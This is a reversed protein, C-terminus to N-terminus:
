SQGGDLADDHAEDQTDDQVEDAAPPLERKLPTRESPPMNWRSEAPPVVEVRGVMMHHGVGCFENCLIRFEGAETPTIRLGYDYGPVVQFNVNFPHLNFGHNVDNSSLHLMYEAGQQLRLIPM